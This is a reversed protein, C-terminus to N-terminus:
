RGYRLTKGNVRRRPLHSLASSSFIMFPPLSTSETSAAIDRKRTGVAVYLRVNQTNSPSAVTFLKEDTLWIFHVLSASYHRLLLRSRDLRAQKNAVTLEHARRKEHM